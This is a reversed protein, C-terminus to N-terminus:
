FGSGFAGGLLGNAAMPENDGDLLALNMVDSGYRANPDQGSNNLNPLNNILTTSKDVGSDMMQSPPPILTSDLTDGRSVQHSQSLPQKVRLRNSTQAPATQQSKGNWLEMVRDALINIKAGLKTQMTVLILLLPIAFNVENFKHYPMKSYTPVYRVIKDIFWIGVFLAGLQIIVELSIEVSGKNDDEEPIYAKILKLVIVVPIISLLVYQLMNLMNSKNDHDFNFVHNIFGSGSVIDRELIEEAKDM